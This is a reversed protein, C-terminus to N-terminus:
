PPIRILAAPQTQPGFAKVGPPLPAPYSMRKGSLKILSVLQNAQQRICIVPEPLEPTAKWPRVMRGRTLKEKKEKRKRKKNKNL